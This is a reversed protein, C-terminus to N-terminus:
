KNPQKEALVKAQDPEGLPWRALSPALRLTFGLEPATPCPALVEQKPM